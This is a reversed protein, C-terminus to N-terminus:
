YEMTCTIPLHDSYGSGKWLQYRAPHGESDAWEGSNEANFERIKGDGYIFFHDIREWEKKYWYSGPELFTGNELIWPSYVRLNEKGKLEVNEKENGSVIAFESIDKNFDGCALMVKSKSKEEQMLRVLLKEQEKRWIESSEEGSSKSKWHNVFLALSKNGDFITFKIIGRMSPQKEESRIDLNHVSIEGLPFRSIIGCGISGKDKGAFFGYKYLSSFDFTGSLRNFIDQLQSEKELEEMIVLDADLEKIVQCLRELRAEYKSKNWGSKSSKYDSYENGDYQSDFFTQLNWNM